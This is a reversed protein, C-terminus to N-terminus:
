GREGARPRPVPKTCKCPKRYVRRPAVRETVTEYYTRIEVVPATTVTTETVIVPGYGWGWGYGYGGYGYGHGYGPPPPGHHRYTRMERRSDGPGDGGGHRAYGDSDDDDREHREAWEYDWDDTEYDGDGVYVPVGRDDEDWDEGYRDWDMDHRGDHVRGDRDILYADDYYRVWRGGEFPEPFGYAGWHRIHFQPGFWAHPVSGGRGIRRIHTFRGPHRPMHHMGPNHMGPGMHRPPHHRVGPGAMPPRPQHHVGPGARPPGHRMMPPAAPAQAAAAMAAVPLSLSMDSLGFSPNDPVTQAALAAPVLAASAALAIMARKNM